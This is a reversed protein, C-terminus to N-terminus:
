SSSLSDKCDQNLCINKLICFPCLRFSLTSLYLVKYILFIERQFIDSLFPFHLSCVPLFFKWVMFRVFSNYGPNSSCLSSKCSFLSSKKFTPLLDLLRKVLYSVYSHGILVHFPSPLPVGSWYEQRPVGMSPPAQYAATRPTASPRVRSLSKVKM